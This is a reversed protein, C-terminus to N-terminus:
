PEGDPMMRKMEAALAEQKRMLEAEHQRLFSVNAPNTKMARALSDPDDNPRMKQIGAAMGAQMMAMTVLAFERASLGAERVAANFAPEREINRAMEDISGSNNGENRAEAAQREAPSMAQTKQMMGRQAAYYRDIKEMSLQYATVDALQEAGSGSSAAASGAAAAPANASDGVRAADGKSGCATIAALTALVILARSYRMTSTPKTM